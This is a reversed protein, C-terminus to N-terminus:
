LTSSFWTQGDIIQVLTGAMLIKDTEVYDTDIGQKTFTTVARGTDKNFIRTGDADIRTYTDNASSNVQIGKGIQVSDSQIENANQSWPQKIDGSILLLDSILFSNNTDASFLVSFLGDTIDITNEYFTWEEETLDITVNNITASGTALPLIKKYHFSINYTGSKLQDVTQAIQGNQLYIARGSVNNQQIDTTTDSVITGEWYENGFFGVSNKIFNDGGVSLLSNTIGSANVILNEIQTRQNLIENDLNNIDTETQTIRAGLAEETEVLEKKTDVVTEDVKKLTQTITEGGKFFNVVKDSNITGNIYNNVTKSTKQFIDTSELTIDGIEITADSDDWLNHSFALVRLQEINGEIYDYDIVDVIDNLKLTELEYGKIKRLLVTQVTLEKRPKSLESLKRNGWSMLQLPDTIDDNNEIGEFNTQTYSHNELWISGNNVSKINLNGEGLPCLKTIIKNNGILELSKMNKQYRVEYGSYPLFVTENRHSITKNVSDFVMIGGWISQIKWINEYIDTLDTELDFTGAVDCIGTTWGTGYLIADLAYGSSGKIHTTPVEIGNNKLELDGNSLVVVMFDDISEFGTESNWAKVFKRSLLKQREYATVTILDTDNEDKIRDICGEFCATFVKNDAVFFNEPDYIQNWKESNAKVSFTLISESNQKDEIHPNILTDEDDKAFQAILTENKDLVYVIESDM